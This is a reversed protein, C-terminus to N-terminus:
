AIQTGTYNGKKSVQITVMKTIIQSLALALWARRFSPFEPDGSRALARSPRVSKGPLQANNSDDDATDRFSGVASGTRIGHWGAVIGTGVGSPMRFREGCALGKRLQRRREGHRGSSLRDIRFDLVPAHRAAVWRNGFYSGVHQLKLELKREGGDKGEGFGSLNWKVLEWEPLGYFRNSVSRSFDWLEASDAFNLNHKGKMRAETPWKRNGVAPGREHLQGSVGRPIDGLNGWPALGSTRKGNM